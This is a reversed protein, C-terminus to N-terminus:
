QVGNNNNQRYKREYHFLYQQALGANNGWVSVLYSAIDKDRHGCEYYNHYVKKIWTDVPVVDGRGYGFLLICDAVKPGIGSMGCLLKNAQLSSMDCIDPMGNDLLMQATNAIYADRYGAGAQRYISVDANALQTLTPFAYGHETVDGLSVCIKDIISRIRTINNNASIIFSIITEAPDQRLIRIGRGSSCASAMTDSSASLQNCALSYDSDLDFYNWWYATDDCSITTVSGVQEIYAHKDLSYVHYCKDAVKHYRFVQGCELTDSIDLYRSNVIINNGVIEAKM